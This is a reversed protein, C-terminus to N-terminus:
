RKNTLLKYNLGIHLGTNYPREQIAENKSRISSLALSGFGSFGLDMRPGAIWYLGISTNAGINNRSYNDVQTSLDELERIDTVGLKKGTMGLLGMYQVGSEVKLKFQRGKVNLTDVFGLQLPIQLYRYQNIGTYNVRYHLSPNWPVFDLTKQNVNEDYFGDVIYDYSVSEEVQNYTLGSSIFWNKGFYRNVDVNLQYSYSGTEMAKTIEDFRPNIRWALDGNGRIIKSAWNPTFSVGLEWSGNSSTSFGPNSRGEDKNSIVGPKNNDVNTPLDKDPNATEQNDDQAIEKSNSEDPKDSDENAIERDNSPTTIGPTEGVVDGADGVPIAPVNPEPRQVDTRENPTNPQNARNAAQAENTPIKINEVVDSQESDNTSSPTEIVAPTEHNVVTDGSDLDSSPTLLWFLGGVLVVIGAALYPWWVPAAKKEEVADLKNVIADWDASSVSSELGEMQGRLLEDFRNDLQSV